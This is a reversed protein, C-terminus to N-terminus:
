TLRVATFGITLTRQRFRGRVLHLYLKNKLDTWGHDREQMKM